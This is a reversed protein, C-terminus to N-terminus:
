NDETPIDPVWLYGDPDILYSERLGHPKDAAEALVTYGFKKAREAAQDPDFGHLRIEVGMGRQDTLLNYLPNSDYTHDAHFMWETGCGQIVAIDPDSYVVTTELVRTQFQLSVDISKVLLNLTIGTLSRGYEPAPIWSDGTRLKM